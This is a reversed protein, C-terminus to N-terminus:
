PLEPDPIRRADAHRLAECLRRRLLALLSRILSLSHILHIPAPTPTPTPCQCPCPCPCLIAHIFEKPSSQSPISASLKGCATALQNENMENWTCDFIADNTDFARVFQINGSAQDLQLIFQKGNGEFCVDAKVISEFSGLQNM